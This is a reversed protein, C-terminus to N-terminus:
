SRPAYTFVDSHMNQESLGLHALQDLTGYVMSPSGCVFVQTQDFSTFDEKLVQYIWGSRQQWEPHAEELILHYHFNPHEQAWQQPLDPLYFGEADKNSWYLHVEQQPNLKLAAETLCKIQSFGSGAAVMILAQNPHNNLFRQNIFCEGMPLTVRVIVAERLFCIICQAKESASAIYLEIKRPDGGMISAPASAISFPIQEVEGNDSQMELLLHQGPWFDAAKGAPLLLEVHWMHEAVQNLGAIQCAYTHAEKFDAKHVAPMYLEADTIPKAVCCLVRDEQELVNQGLSNRFKFAGSIRESQCIMCVGNDCGLFIEVGQQEAAEAICQDENCLISVNAPQFTIRHQAM